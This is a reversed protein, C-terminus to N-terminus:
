QPLRSNPSIVLIMRKKICDKLVKGIVPGTICDGDTVLSAIIFLAAFMVMFQNKM